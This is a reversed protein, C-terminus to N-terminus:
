KGRKTIFFILEGLLLAIALRGSGRTRPHKLFERIIKLKLECELKALLPNNHAKKPYLEFNCTNEFTTLSNEDSASIDVKKM